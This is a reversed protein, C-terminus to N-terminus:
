QAYQNLLEGLAAGIMRGSYVAEELTNADAGFELLLSFPTANMNYVRQCFFIPRMLGPFDTEAQQQLHVAFNLNQAWNPYDTISGEETGTIIMVQAAKKGNVAAVPKIHVGGDAHIADRHVDLTVMLEPNEKLVKEVTDMSRYYAGGYQKDYITKDHIVQFGARELEAAIADGVRVISRGPIESRSTYGQAYWGRDLIEFAETTHTHYILVAPKSKDISLKMPTDLEKQLNVKRTETTNRVSVNGLVDTGDSKQYTRASIDGDKKQNAYEKKAEEILVKIDSPTATLDAPNGSAASASGKTVEQGDTQAFSQKGTATTDGGPVTAGGQIGALLSGGGFPFRMGTGLLAADRMVRDSAFIAAAAVAACSVAILRNRLSVTRAPPKDQAAGRPASATCEKM